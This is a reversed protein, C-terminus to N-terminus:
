DNIKQKFSFIYQLKWKLYETLSEQNFNKDTSKVTSLNNGFTRIMGREVASSIDCEVLEQYLRKTRVSDNLLARLYTIEEERGPINESIWQELYGSELVGINPNPWNYKNNIFRLVPINIRLKDNTLFDPRWSLRSLVIRKQKEKEFDPALISWNEVFELVEKDYCDALLVPNGDYILGAIREPHHEAIWTMDQAAPVRGYFIAKKIALADMFRLLDGAQTAVDYGWRTDTSQGYGRRIPALVRFEKSLDKFFTSYSTDQYVEDFYNHFDQIWILTSGNGGFDMYQLKIDGLDAIKSKYSLEIGQGM